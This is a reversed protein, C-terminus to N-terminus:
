DWPKKRSLRTDIAQRSGQYYGVSHIVIDTPILVDGEFTSPPSPSGYARFNIDTIDDGLALVVFSYAFGPDMGTILQEACEEGTGCSFTNVTEQILEKTENDWRRRILNMQNGAKWGIRVASVGSAWDPELENFLSIEMEHGEEIRSQEVRLTEDFVQREWSAGNSCLGTDGDLDVVEAEKKRLEYLAEETGTEAAFFSLISFEVDKSFRLERLVLTGILSSTVLISSIILIAFLVLTGREDGGLKRKFSFFKLM